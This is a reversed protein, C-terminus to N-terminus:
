DRRSTRVIRDYADKIIKPKFEKTWGEAKRHAELDALVDLIGFEYKLKKGARKEMVSSYFLEDRIGLEPNSPRGTGGDTRKFIAKLLFRRGTSRQYGKFDLAHALDIWFPRPARGWNALASFGEIVRWRIDGKLQDDSVVKPKGRGRNETIRIEYPLVETRFRSPIDIMQLDSARGFVADLLPQGDTIAAILKGVKSGPPRKQWAILDLLPRADGSLLYRAIVHDYARFYEWSRHEALIEAEFRWANIRDPPQSAAADSARPESARLNNGAPDESVLEAKEAEMARVARVRPARPRCSPAIRSEATPRAGALTQRTERRNADYRRRETARWRRRRREVFSARPTVTVAEAVGLVRLTM